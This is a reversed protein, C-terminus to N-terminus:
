SAGEGALGAPAAASLCSVNMRVTREPENM